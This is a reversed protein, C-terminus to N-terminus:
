STKEKFVIRYRIMQSLSDEFPEQCRQIKLNETTVGKFGESDSM